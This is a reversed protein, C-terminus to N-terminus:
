RRIRTMLRLNSLYNRADIAPHQDLYTMHKEVFSILNDEHLETNASYTAETSYNTDSLMAQLALKIEVGEESNYFDVRKKTAM